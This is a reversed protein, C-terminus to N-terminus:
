SLGPPLDAERVVRVYPFRVEGSAKRIKNRMWRVMTKVKNWALAEDPTDNPYVAYVHFAEEGSHDTGPIVLVREPRLFGEATLKDPHVLAALAEMDMVVSGM